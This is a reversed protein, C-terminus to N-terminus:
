FSLALILFHVAFIYFVDCSKLQKSKSKLLSQEWRSLRVLFCSWLGWSAALTVNTVWVRFPPSGVVAERWHGLLPLFELSHQTGGGWAGSCPVLLM